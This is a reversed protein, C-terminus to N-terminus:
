KTAVNSTIDGRWQPSRSTINFLTHATSIWSKPNPM